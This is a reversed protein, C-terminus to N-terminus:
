SSYMEADLQALKAIVDADTIKRFRPMTIGDKEVEELFMGLPRICYQADVLFDNEYLPRYLANYSGDETHWAVGLVRYAHDNFGMAPDHKYHYYYGPELHSHRM